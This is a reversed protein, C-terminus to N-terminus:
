LAGRYAFSSYIFEVEQYQSPSTLVHSFFFCHLYHQPHGEFGEPACGLPIAFFCHKLHSFPLGAWSYSLLSNFLLVDKLMCITGCCVSSSRTVCVTFHMSDTVVDQNISANSDVDYAVDQLSRGCRFLLLALVLTHIILFVLCSVSSICYEGM